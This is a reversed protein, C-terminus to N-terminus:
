SLDQRPVSTPQRSRTNGSRSPGLTAKEGEEQRGGDAKAKADKIKNLQDTADEVM